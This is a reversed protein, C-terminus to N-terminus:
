KAVDFRFDGAAVTEDQLRKFDAYLAQQLVRETDRLALVLVPTPRKKMAALSLVEQIQARAAWLQQNSLM